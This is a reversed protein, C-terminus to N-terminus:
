KIDVAAQNVKIIKESHVDGAGFESEEYDSEGIDSLKLGVEKEELIVSLPNQLTISESRWESESKSVSSLRSNQVSTSSSTGVFICGINRPCELLKYQIYVQDRSQHNEFHQPSAVLSHTIFM